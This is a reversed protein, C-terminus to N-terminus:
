RRVVAWVRAPPSPTEHVLTFSSIQGRMAPALYTETSRTWTFADELVYSVANRHVTSMLLSTDQSYPYEVTLRGSLLYLLDPKRGLIVADQPTKQQIWAVAELWRAWEGNAGYVEALTQQRAVRLNREVRRVDIALCSLLLVTAVAALILSPPDVHITARPQNADIPAKQANARTGKLRDIGWGIASLLYLYAFPVILIIYRFGLVWVFLSLSLWYAAIAVEFVRVGRRIEVAFGLLCLLGIAVCAAPAAAGLWSLHPM